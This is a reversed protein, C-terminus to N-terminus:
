EFIERRPTKPQKRGGEMFPVSAFRDLEAFWKAVDVPFPELLVGRDVRRV